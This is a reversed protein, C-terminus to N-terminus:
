KPIREGKREVVMQCRSRMDRALGELGRGGPAAYSPSNMYEQVRKMRQRFMAPTEDLNATAFTTGLLRRVNALVARASRM